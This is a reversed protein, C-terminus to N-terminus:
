QSPAKMREKLAAGVDSGMASKMLIVDYFMAAGFSFMTAEDGCM